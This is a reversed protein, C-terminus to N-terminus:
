LSKVADLDTQLTLFDFATPSVTNQDAWDPSFVAWAESGYKLWWENTLYQLQGYTVCWFGNADYGVIPIAHGGLVRKGGFWPNTEKWNMGAQFEDMARQTLTVGAFVSGFLYIATRMHQLEAPDVSVFASIPRRGAIGTSQWYKLLDLENYGVDTSPTAPDYGALQSYLALVQVDTPTFDIGHEKLWNMVMHFATAFVCCGAKDNGLMLWDKIAKGSQYVDPITPLVATKLYRAFKLTRKDPRSALRGMPLAPRKPANIRLCYWVLFTATLIAVVAIGIIITEM